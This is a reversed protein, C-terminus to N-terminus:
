RLLVASRRRARDPGRRKSDPLASSRRSSPTTALPRAKRPDGFARCSPPSPWSADPARARRCVIRPTESAIRRRRRSRPPPRENERPRPALLPVARREYRDGRSRRPRRRAERGVEPERRCRARHTAGLWRRKESRLRRPRARMPRGRREWPARRPPFRPPGTCREPVRRIPFLQQERKRERAQERQRALRPVRLRRFLRGDPGSVAVAPGGNAVTPGAAASGRERAREGHRAHRHVGLNTLPVGTVILDGLVFPDSEADVRVSRRLHNRARVRCSGANVDGREGDREAREAGSTTM